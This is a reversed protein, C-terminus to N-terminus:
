NNNSDNPPIRIITGLPIPMDYLEKNFDMLSAIDSSIEELLSGFTEGTRATFYRREEEEYIETPVCIEDGPQLNYVNVFPNEKMVDILRVGYLKSIKYLTDGAVVKHIVGKCEKEM